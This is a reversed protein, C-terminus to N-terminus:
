FFTDEEGRLLRKINESHQWYVVTTLIWAALVPPSAFGHFYGAVLPLALAGSLSGVSMYRTIGVGVGFVLLAALLSEPILVAFVGASTAVGKGGSFGLFVSYIHGLIAVIGTLVWFWAVDQVMTTEPVTVMAGYVPIAGKSADLALVLFGPTWGFNRIVNTAGINGSGESRLDTSEFTKSYLLGFPISGVLYSGGLYVAELIM